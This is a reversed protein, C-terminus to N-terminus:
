ETARSARELGSGVRRREVARALTGLLARPSSGLKEVVDEAGERIWRVDQPPDGPRTMAVVPLSPVGRLMARLRAVGGPPSVDLLAVDYDRRRLQAFAAGLEVVTEITVLAGAAAILQERVRRLDDSHGDVLLIKM